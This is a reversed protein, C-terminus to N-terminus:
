KEWVESISFLLPQSFERKRRERRSGLGGRKKFADKAIEMIRDM